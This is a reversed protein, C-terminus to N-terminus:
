IKKTFRIQTKQENLKLLTNKNDEKNYPSKIEAMKNWIKIRWTKKIKGAKRCERINVVWVENKQKFTVFEIKEKTIELNNLNM